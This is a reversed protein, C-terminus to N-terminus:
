SSVETRKALEAGIMRLAAVPDPGLSGSFTVEHFGAAAIRDLGRALDEADGVAMFRDVTEDSIGALAAADGSSAARAADVEAPAIGYFDVMPGISPLRVALSPRAAARARDRDADLCTWNQLVLRVAGPDRGVSAAGETVLVRLHEMFTPDWQGPPRIGDAIRGAMRTAQPGFVGLHLPISRPTGFRLRAAETLSYVSGDFTGDRGETLHRIVGVAEELAALRQTPHLGIMDFHSGQGLGMIARGGSIEDLDRVSEALVAPHQVYPNSVAPGVHVRQTEKAILALIPWPPRFMLADHYTVESFGLEEALAALELAVDIGHATTLHLGFRM